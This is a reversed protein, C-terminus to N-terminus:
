KFYEILNNQMEEVHNKKHELSFKPLLLGSLASSIFITGKLPELMIMSGAVSSSGPIVGTLEELEAVHLSGAVSSAGNIAGALPIPANSYFVKIWITDLGSQGGYNWADIKFRFNADSFEDVTWTRGWTDTPGGYDNTPEAEIDVWWLGGFHNTKYSTWSAGGDWSLYSRTSIAGGAGDSGGRGYLQIGDIQKGAPISFGFTSVQALGHNPYYIGSYIGDKAQWRVAIDFIGAWGSKSVEITAFKWGTDM